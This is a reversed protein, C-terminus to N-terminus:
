ISPAMIRRGSARSAAVSDPCSNALRGCFKIAWTNRLSLTSGVKEASAGALRMENTGDTRGGMVSSSIRTLDDNPRASSLPSCREADGQSATEASSKARVDGNRRRTRRLSGASEAASSSATKGVENGM